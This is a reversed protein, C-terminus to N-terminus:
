HAQQVRLTVQEDFTHGINRHRTRWEIWSRVARGNKQFAFRCSVPVSNVVPDHHKAIVVKRVIDRVAKVDSMKPDVTGRGPNLM